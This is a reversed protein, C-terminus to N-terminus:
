RRRSVRGCWARIPAPLLVVLCGPQPVQLISAVLTVVLVSATRVRYARVRADRSFRGLVGSGGSRMVRGGRRFCPSLRVSRLVGLMRELLSYFTIYIM